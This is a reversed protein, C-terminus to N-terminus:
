SRQITPLRAYPRRHFYKIIGDVFKDEDEAKIPEVFSNDFDSPLVIQEDGKKVCHVKKAGYSSFVYGLEFFLNNSISGDAKNQFIMIAQNCSKIQQIVTDGVSAFNSSNDANGGICCIYNYDNELIRKIKLAADNNGSWGIFIKDKM